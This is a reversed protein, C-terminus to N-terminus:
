ELARKTQELDPIARELVIERLRSNLDYIQRTLRPYWELLPVLNGENDYCCNEDTMQISLLESTLQNFTEISRDLTELAPRGTVIAGVIRSDLAELHGGEFAANLIGGRFAFTLNSAPINPRSGEEIREVIELHNLLKQEELGLHGALSEFERILNEYYKVRVERERLEEQFDTLLFALYVGVFVIAFEGIYRFVVRWPFRGLGELLKKFMSAM